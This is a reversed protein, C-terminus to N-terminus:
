VDRYCFILDFNYESLSWFVPKSSARLRQSIPKDPLLSISPQLGSPPSIHITKVYLKFLNAFLSNQVMLQCQDQEIRTTSPHASGRLRDASCSENYRFPWPEEPRPISHREAPFPSSPISTLKDFCRTKNVSLPYLNILQVFWLGDQSALLNEALRSNEQRKHFLLPDATAYHNLCQEALRFTKPDIGLPTM